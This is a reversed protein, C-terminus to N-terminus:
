NSKSLIKQIMDVDQSKITVRNAHATATVVEALVSSVEAEVFLQYYLRFDQSFLYKKTADNADKFISRTKREFVAKAIVFNSDAVVADNLHYKGDFSPFFLLVDKKLTKKDSSELKKQIVSWHEAMLTDVIRNVSVYIEKSIRMKNDVINKMFMKRVTAKPILTSDTSVVNKDSKKVVKKRAPLTKKGEKSVKTDKVVKVVKTDKVVKGVKTDKVVKVEKVPVSKKSSPSTPTKKMSTKKTQKTAADSEM